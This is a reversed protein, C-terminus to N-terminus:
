YITELHISERVGSGESSSNLICTQSWPHAFNKWTSAHVSSAPRRVSPETPLTGEQAECTSNLVPGPENEGDALHCVHGLTVGDTCCWRKVGFTNPSRSMQDREIIFFFFFFTSFLIMHFSYLRLWSMCDSSSSLFAAAWSNRNWPEGTFWQHCHVWSLPLRAVPRSPVSVGRKQQRGMAKWCM